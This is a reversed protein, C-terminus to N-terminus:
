NPTDFPSLIVTDSDPENVRTKEVSTKSEHMDYSDARLEESLDRGLLDYSKFGRGIAEQDERDDGFLKDTFLTMLDTRSGKPSTGARMQAFGAAARAVVEPIGAAKAVMGYHWNGFEQYQGGAGPM